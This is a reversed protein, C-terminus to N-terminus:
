DERFSGDLSLHDTSPVPHDEPPKDPLIREGAQALTFSSTDVELPEFVSPPIIQVGVEAMTLEDSQTDETSAESATPQPAQTTANTQPTPKQQPAAQEAAAQQSPESQTPKEAKADDQKKILALAGAKRMMSQYKMAMTYELDRNITVEEGSFLREIAEPKSKFLAVLNAKVQDLTMNKVTQGRFVVDFKGDFM